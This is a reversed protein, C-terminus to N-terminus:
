AGAANLALLLAYVISLPSTFSSSTAEAHHSEDQQARALSVSLNSIIGGVYISDTGTM